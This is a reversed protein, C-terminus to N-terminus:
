RIDFYVYDAGGFDFLDSRAAAFFDTVGEPVEFAINGTQTIGPNVTIKAIDSRFTDADYKQDSSDILTFMNPMVMEAKDGNNQATVNLIVYHKGDFDETFAENVTIAFPGVSAPEGIKYTYNGATETAPIGAVTNTDSFKVILAIAAIVVVFAAIGILIKKKPVDRFQSDAPKSEVKDSM